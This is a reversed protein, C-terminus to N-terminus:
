SAIIVPLMLTLVGAFLADDLVQRFWLFIAALVGGGVIWTALARALHLLSIGAPGSSPSRRAM